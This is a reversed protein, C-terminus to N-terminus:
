KEIFTSIQMKILNKKTPIIGKKFKFQVKVKDEDGKVNIIDIRNKFNENNCINNYIEWGEIEWIVQSSNDYVIKFAQGDLKNFTQRLLYNKIKILDKHNEFNLNNEKFQKLYNKQCENISNTNEFNIIEKLPIYIAQTEFAMRVQKNEKLFELSELNHQRDIIKILIIRIDKTGAWLLREIKDEFNQNPFEFFSKENKNLSDVIFGIKKGFIKYINEIKIEECDEVTDHLLSGIVLNKDKFKEWATIAIYVPHIIFNLGSKRKQNFHAKRAFKLAKFIKEDYEFFKNLFEDDEYIELIKHQNM